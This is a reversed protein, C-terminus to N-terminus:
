RPPRYCRTRVGARPARLYIAPESPQAPSPVLTFAAAPMVEDDEDDEDFASPPATDSSGLPARALEAIQPQAGPDGAALARSAPALGLVGAILAVCSM